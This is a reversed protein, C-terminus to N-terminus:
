KIYNYKFTKNQPLIVLTKNDSSRIMKSIIELDKSCDLNLYDNARNEWIKDDSLAIINISFDIFSDPASLKSNKFKDNVNRGNFTIYQITEKTKM